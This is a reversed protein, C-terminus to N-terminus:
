CSDTMPIGIDGGKLGREGDCGQLSNCLGLQTGQIM